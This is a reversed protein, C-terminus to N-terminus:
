RLRNLARLLVRRELDTKSEKFKANIVAYEEKKFTADDGIQDIEYKLWESYFLNGIDRLAQAGKMVTVLSTIFAMM